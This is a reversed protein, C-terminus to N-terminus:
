CKEGGLQSLAEQIPSMAFGGLVRPLAFPAKGRLVDFALFCGKVFVGKLWDLICSTAVWIALLTRNRTSSWTSPRKLLEPGTVQSSAEQTQPIPSRLFCMLQPGSNRMFFYPMPSLIRCFCGIARCMGSLTVCKNRHM